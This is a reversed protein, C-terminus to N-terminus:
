RKAGSFEAVLQTSTAILRGADDWLRGHIDAHGGAAADVECRFRFWADAAVDTLPTDAVPLNVQWTVTSAPAPRRLLALIPAPWADILAAIAAADHGLFVGDHGSLVGDHAAFAGDADAKHRVWGDVLATESGGFPGDSLWAYDFHQTFAPTMGEIYPMPPLAAPGPAAPPRAAEVSAQSPRASGWATLLTAIPRRDTPADGQPPEATQFLEVRIHSLTRGARVTTAEAYLTGTAAPAFFQALMSRLPRGEAHRAALRLGLGTVLGGFAARGQGWDPSIEVRARSDSDNASIGPGLLQNFSSM